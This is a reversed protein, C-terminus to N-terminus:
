IPARDTQISPEGVGVWVSLRRCASSFSDSCRLLLIQHKVKETWHVQVYGLELDNPELPYAVSINSVNEESM